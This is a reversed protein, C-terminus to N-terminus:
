VRWEATLLVLALAAVAISVYELVLRRTIRGYLHRQLLHLLLYFAIFLSGGVVPHSVPLLAFVTLIEVILFAMLASWFMRAAFAPVARGVVHYTLLGAIIGIATATAWLPFRLHFSLGYMGTSFLFFTGFTFLWTWTPYAWETARAILLLFGLASGITFLQQLSGRPVFLHFLLVSMIYTVPLITVHAGRARVDERLTVFVGGFLVVLLLVFLPWYWRSVASLGEMGVLLCGSLILAARDSFIGRMGPPTQGYLWPFGLVEERFTM